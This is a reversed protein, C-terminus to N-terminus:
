DTCPSQKAGQEYGLYQSCVSFCRHKSGSSGHQGLTIERRYLWGGQDFPKDGGTCLEWSFNDGPQGGSQNCNSARRDCRQNGDCDRDGSGYSSAFTYQLGM